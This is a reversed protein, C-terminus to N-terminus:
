GVGRTSEGLRGTAGDMFARLLIAATKWKHTSYFSYFLIYKIVKIATVIRWKRMSKLRLLYTANRIMYYNRIDSHLNIDKGLIRVNGDGISHRMVADPIIYCTYGKYQARMCWEIDVWDIFLDDRMMGVSQFASIRILAGSAILHDTQLPEHCSMDIRVRHVGIRARRIAFSRKGTKEDIFLPGVAAVQEGAQILQRESDLLKKVMDESLASDQDLLLVHSCGTDMVLRIGINQATAIGKNEGLPLYSISARYPNFFSSFDATSGPTNDIVIIKEVQHGVSRLLRDLLPLDPRYLVIVAAVMIYEVTDSYHRDMQGRIPTGGKHSLCNHNLEGCIRSL